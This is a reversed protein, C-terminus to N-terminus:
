AFAGDIEFCERSYHFIQHEGLQKFSVSNLTAECLWQSQTKPNRQKFASPNFLGICHGNEPDRASQYEFADINSARMDRGIQQTDIYSTPHTLKEQYANFPPQHLKVGKDTQYGVSFMCHESRIRSNSNLGTMSYLFIFRYYASEALTATKTLGAYFLSPENISGFRSGWKLPPYRFPTTLLYHYNKNQAYVHEPYPPKVEELLQELLEQEDLTDVYSMTAVQEQSEVMRHLDGSISCLYQEGKCEKWIMSPEKYRAEFVM